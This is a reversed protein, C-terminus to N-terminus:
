IKPIPSCTRRGTVLAGGFNENYYYKQMVEWSLLERGTQSEEECREPVASVGPIYSPPLKEGRGAPRAPSTECGPVQRPSRRRGYIRQVLDYEFENTDSLIDTQDFLITNRFNDVGTTFRYAFLPEIVHKLREGFIEHDFVKEMAPPRLEVAAELDRRNLENGSAVGLPNTTSAAIQQTYLTDHLAISPRVDWGKWDLPLAIRPRLDLRGVLNATVFGPESRQLGAGSADVEWRLPSSFVPKELGNVEVVPLHLIKIQDSYSTTVPDQYFNQYRGAAGNLSWGALNHSLYAISKVESNVSQSYTESFAQRFLFSSLYDISAAARWHDRNTEGILRAEEGGQDQHTGPAGRDVVGFYHLELSSNEAPKM